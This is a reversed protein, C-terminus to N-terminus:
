MQTRRSQGAVGLTEESNPVGPPAKSSAAAIDREDPGARISQGLATRLSEM